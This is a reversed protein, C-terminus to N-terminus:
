FLDNWTSGNYCCLKNTTSDYVVLGSAPSAIANKQTTTMRPPLFGRNTSNLNLVSSADVSLGVGINFGTGASNGFLGFSSINGNNATIYMAGTARLFLGGDAGYVGDANEYGGASRIVGNNATEIARGYATASTFTSVGNDTVRFRDVGASNQVLLATTGSTTGSGKFHGTATPSNTGVGLRNNTDDWFLNTADSAFASGNSFQIAGSAGSPSASIVIDGSGLLSTSNITKINTGSVLTAQVAVDGSGLLSTSNVTKINTGSILTDQKSTALGSYQSNTANDGTNTGSTNGVVVLQADTVYRKNTSDAIDATTADAGATVLGKADYTIKTKTSATIAANEDVKGDLATQLDTQNSLTGTISGWTTSGGGGSYQPINLTTGILTAAGSTGTTTLALTGQKTNLQTQIPSTVGNLYGYETNDVSGSGIDSADLVVSGTKGAVSQVPSQAKLQAINIKKTIDDSIDVIPLVDDNAITVIATLDTIKKDAM